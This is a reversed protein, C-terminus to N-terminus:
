TPSIRKMFQLDIKSKWRQVWKAEPIYFLGYYGMAQQSSTTM